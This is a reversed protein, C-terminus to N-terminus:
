LKSHNKSPNDVDTGFLPSLHNYKPTINMRVTISYPDQGVIRHLNASDQQLEELSTETKMVGGSKVSRDVKEPYLADGPLVSAFCDPAVLHIPLWQECGELSRQWAFRHLDALAPCRCMRGLEYFQPPAVWIEKSKYSHLVESPSSWKFHVIEKEDHLTHPTDRLCCIYFATDYRRQKGHMGVPTLWNGWEHLAWINPLCQLEKCMKIFNASDSIVLSRWKSLVDRDWLGSLTTLTPQPDSDRADDTRVRIGSEEHTPVALLVGSEEFTERVACIRFAVDGPIPSGLQARDTAFIPPRTEPPQKVVGIGYNPAKTFSQFVEQWDSSFDSADALGGPFVYANPMFGSSGSRKLLLVQYDFASIHAIDSVKELGTKLSDASQARRLGAALIVTAAERWHKLATNM